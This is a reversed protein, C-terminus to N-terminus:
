SKQASNRSTVCGSITQSGKLKKFDAQVEVILPKLAKLKGCLPVFEDVLQQARKEAEALWKPVSHTNQLTVGLGNKNTM